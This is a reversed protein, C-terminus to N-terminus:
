ALIQAKSEDVFVILTQFTPVPLIIEYYYSGSWSYSPYLTCVLQYSVWNIKISSSVVKKSTWLM